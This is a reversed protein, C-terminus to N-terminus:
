RHAGNTFHVLRQWIRRACPIVLLAHFILRIRRRPNHVQSIMVDCAQQGLRRATAGAVLRAGAGAEGGADAGGGRPSLVFARPTTYADTHQAACWLSRGYRLTAAMVITLILRRQARHELVELVPGRWGRAPGAGGHIIV